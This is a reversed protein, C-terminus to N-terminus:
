KASMLFKQIEVIFKVLQFLKSITILIEKFNTKSTKM